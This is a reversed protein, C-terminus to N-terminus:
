KTSKRVLDLVRDFRTIIKQPSSTGTSIAAIFDGDNTMLSRAGAVLDDKMRLVQGQTLNSLVVSWVDFLARNIPFLNSSGEPWKRFAYGGFLLSANEMARAFGVALSKLQRESVQHPDDLTQNMATLLEDMSNYRKFNGIDGLLKFAAYRLALERDVMRVHNVIASGMTTRFEQTDCLERLFQRSRDKSMCHRIEQSNLPSGGTNIRRFIDFKVAVPTQPDIVNASIQTNLIRRSWVSGEIQDFSKGVLEDGLYEL